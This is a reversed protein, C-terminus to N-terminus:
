RTFISLDCGDASMSDVKCGAFGLKGTGGIPTSGCAQLVFLESMWPLLNKSDHNGCAEDLQMQQQIHLLVDDVKEKITVDGGLYLHAPFDDSDDEEEEQDEGHCHCALKCALPSKSDKLCCLPGLEICLERWLRRDKDCEHDVDHYDLFAKQWEQHFEQMVDALPRFVAEDKEKQAQKMREEKNNDGDELDKGLLLDALDSSVLRAVLRSDSALELVKIRVPDDAKEFFQPLIPDLPPISTVLPLQQM